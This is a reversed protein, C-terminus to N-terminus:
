YIDQELVVIVSSWNAAGPRKWEGHREGYLAPISKESGNEITFTHWGLDVRVGDVDIALHAEVTYTDTVTDVMPADCPVIVPLSKGLAEGVAYMDPDSSPEADTEAFGYDCEDECQSPVTVDDVMIHTGCETCEVTGSQPSVMVWGQSSRYLTGAPCTGADLGKACPMIKLGSTDDSSWEVMDRWAAASTMVDNGYTDSAVDAWNSSVLDAITCTDSYRFTNDASQGYRQMEKRIDACGSAHIHELGQWGPRSQRVGVLPVHVPRKVEVPLNTSHYGNANIEVVHAACAGEVNGVSDFWVATVAEGCAYYCESPISDLQDIIPGNSAWYPEDIIVNSEAEREWDARVDSEVQTPAPIWFLEEADGLDCGMVSVGKSVPGIHAQVGHMAVVGRNTLLRSGPVVLGMREMAKVTQGKATNVAYHHEGMSAERLAIAQASSLKIM